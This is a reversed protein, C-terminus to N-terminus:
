TVFRECVQLGEAYHTSKVDAFSGILCLEEARWGSAGLLYRQQHAQLVGKDRPVTCMVNGIWPGCRADVRAVEAVLYIRLDQGCPHSPHVLHGLMGQEGLLHAPSFQRSFALRQTILSPPDIIDLVM